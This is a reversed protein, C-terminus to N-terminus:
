SGTKMPDSAFPFGFRANGRSHARFFITGLAPSSSPVPNRLLKLLSAAECDSQKYWSGTGGDLM